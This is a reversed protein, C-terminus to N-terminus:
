GFKALLTLAFMDKQVQDWESFDEPIGLDRILDKGTELPIVEGNVWYQETEKNGDKDYRIWTHGDLRHEKGNVCYEESRKNGNTWYTIKPKM